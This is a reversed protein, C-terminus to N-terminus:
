PLRAASTGPLIQVKRGTPRQGAAHFHALLIRANPIGADRWATVLAPDLGFYEVALKLQVLDRVQDDSLHAPAEPDAAVIAVAQSYRGAPRKAKLTPLLVRAPLALRAFVDAWPVRKIRLLALSSAPSTSANGLLAIISVDDDPIGARMLREIGDAPTNYFDAYVAALQGRLVAPDAPPLPPLPPTAAHAASATLLLGAAALPALARFLRRRPSM